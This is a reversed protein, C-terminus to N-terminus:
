RNTAGTMLAAAVFMVMSFFGYLFIRIAWHDLKENIAARMLSYGTLSLFFVLIMVAAGGFLQGM